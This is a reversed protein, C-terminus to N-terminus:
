KEHFMNQNSDDPIILKSDNEYLESEEYSERIHELIVKLVASLPLAILVGIIGLLEGGAMVAFIVTVPGLGIRDGVLKPTLFNGEIIQAITFIGLVIVPHLVDSFQFIAALVATSAGIWLGIFPIFNLYGAILGILLSYNLGMMALCAIYIAALINMVLFQGRLFASLNKDSEKAIKTMTARNRKPILRFINDIIEHYNKLFYYTIIPVLALNTIFSIVWSASNFVSQTLTNDGEETKNTVTDKIAKEVTNADIHVDFPIWNNLYHWFDYQFFHIIKPKIYQFERIQESVIPVIFVISLVLLLIIISYAIVVSKARSINRAELKDILPSVFYALVASIIFPTLISRTLYFFLIAVLLLVYWPMHKLFDTKIM